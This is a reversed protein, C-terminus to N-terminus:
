GRTACPLTRSCAITNKVRPSVAIKKVLGHSSNFAKGSCGKEEVSMGGLNSLPWLDCLMLTLLRWKLKERAVFFRPPHHPNANGPHGADSQRSFVCAFVSVSVCVWVCAELMVECHCQASVRLWLQLCNAAAFTKEGVTSLPKALHSIINFVFFLFVFFAASWRQRQLKVSPANEM